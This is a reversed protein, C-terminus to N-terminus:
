INFIKRTDPLPIETGDCLNSTIIRKLEAPTIFPYKEYILAAMGSIIPTAMSSGSMKIYNKNIMNEFSSSREEFRYDPSLCSIIDEGPAYIDPKKYYCRNSFNGTRFTRVSPFNSASGVTLVLPSIGPSTISSLFASNNDAAIVSIGNKVASEAAKVLPINVNRDSSGASINIIKINYRKHNEIIWQIGNLAALSNGKGYKDLIKLSIIHASPAVGRFIGNSSAGNGCAIGSVHTGHGNDDYPTDHNNIFDKFVAIRGKFDAIPSIGTDMIAIGIGKGTIGKETAYDVNLRERATKISSELTSMPYTKKILGSSLMEKTLSIVALDINKFKFKFGNINCPDTGTNYLEALVLENDM